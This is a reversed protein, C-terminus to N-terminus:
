EKKNPTTLLDLITPIVQFRTIPIWGDQQATEEIGDPKQEHIVGYVQGVPYDPIYRQWILRKLFPISGNCAISLFIKPDSGVYKLETMENENWVHIVEEFGEKGLKEVEHRFRKRWESTPEVIIIM